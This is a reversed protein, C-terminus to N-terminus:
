RNPLQLTVRVEVDAAHEFAFVLELFTRPKEVLGEFFREIGPFAEDAQKLHRETIFGVM